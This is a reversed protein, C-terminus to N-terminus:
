NLAHIHSGCWTVQLDAAPEQEERGAQLSRGAKHLGRFGERHRGAEVGTQAQLLRAEHLRGLGMEGHPKLDGM